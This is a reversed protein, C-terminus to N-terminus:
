PDADLAGTFGVIVHDLAAHRQVILKSDIVLTSPVQDIHVYTERLEMVQQRTGDVARGDVWRCVCVCVCM